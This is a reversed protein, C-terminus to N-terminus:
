KPFHDCWNIRRKVHTCTQICWFCISKSLYSNMYLIQKSIEISTVKMSLIFCFYIQWHIVYMCVCAYVCVNIYICLFNLVLFIERKDTTRKFTLYVYTKNKVLLFVNKRIFDCCTELEIVLLNIIFTSLRYSVFYKKYRFEMKFLHVIM